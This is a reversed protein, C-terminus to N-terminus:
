PCTTVTRTVRCAGGGQPIEAGARNRGYSGEATATQAVVLYYHSAGGPAITATTVNGAACDKAVHDYAGAIPLTGEYIGYGSAGGSCSAGWTLALTDSAGKGIRLPVGAVLAGDPVTGPAAPAQVTVSGTMGLGCHPACFYPFSGASAFTRDYTAGVNTPTAASCNMNNPSCFLGNAVCGTGSTVTHFSGVWVWHVTDGAQIVVTSPAFVFGGQGVNVTFTAKPIAAERAVARLAAGSREGTAPDDTVIALRPRPGVGVVALADAGIRGFRGAAAVRATFGGPLEAALRRDVVEGETSPAAALRALVAEREAGALSPPEAELPHVMGVHMSHDAPHAEVLEASFDGRGDGRWLFARGDSKTVLLDATGDADGDGVRVSRVKPGLAKLIRLSFGTEGDPLFMAVGDGEPLRFVVADRGSGDLDAAVAREPLSHSAFSPSTAVRAIGASLLVSLALRLISSM